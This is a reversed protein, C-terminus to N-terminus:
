SCDFVLLVSINAKKQLYKPCKKKEKAVDSIFLKLHAPSTYLYCTVKPSITLRLDRLFSFCETQFHVTKVSPYTVGQDRTSAEKLTREAADSM